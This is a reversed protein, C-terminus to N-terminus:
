LDLIIFSKSKAVNSRVDMLCAIVDGNTWCERLEGEGRGVDGRVESTQEARSKAGAMATNAATPLPPPPPPPAQPPSALAGLSRYGEDSVESGSDTNTQGSDAVPATAAPTLAPPPPAAPAEAALHPGDAM